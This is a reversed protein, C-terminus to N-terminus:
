NITITWPSSFPTTSVSNFARVKWQYQAPGLTMALVNTSVTTDTVLSVVSDFRPTVIVLEYNVSTDVPDWYFNQTTSDSSVNDGPAVLTVTTNDLSKQFVEKCGWASTLGAVM